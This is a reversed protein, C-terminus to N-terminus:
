YETLYDDLNQDVTAQKNYDVEDNAVRKETDTCNISYGDMRRDTFEESHIHRTHETDLCLKSRFLIGDRDHTLKMKEAECEQQLHLMEREHLQKQALLETKHARMLNLKDAEFDQRLRLIREDIDDQHKNEIENDRSIDGGHAGNFREEQGNGYPHSSSLEYHGTYLQIQEGDLQLGNDRGTYTNQTKVLM